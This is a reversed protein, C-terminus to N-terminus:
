TTLRRYIETVKQPLKDVEDIVTYNAAGYMYPLYEQAEKDITICFAQIDTKQIERLAHRTDEIGYQGKYGDCDEPRGDSLTILLKTHALTLQLQSGLHRIAAGMRTFSKPKIGSIRQRVCLDYPQDFTKIRYVECGQNSRGSFGFIAYRDGLMELAECLLVLSEKEAKNVWGVTSGSMDVMFMVAINRSQNRYRTYLYESMEQGNAVEAYAKIIADLDLDDGDSQRRQLQSELLVGEFTRKLSNVLHLYKKLTEDVFSEDGLTAPLERLSCFNEHFQQVRYDWERYRFIGSIKPESQQRDNGTTATPSLDKNDNGLDMLQLYEEPIGDFDQLISSILEPRFNSLTDMEAGMMLQINAEPKQNEYDYDSNKLGLRRTLSADRFNSKKFKMENVDISQIMRTLESKDREIREIMVKHVQNVFMEGQYNKLPPLPLQKVQDILRISDEATTGSEILTRGYERWQSWQAFAYDNTYGFIEFERALGPFDRAMCADLRICELRNFVPMVDDTSCHRILKEVIEYCWTGYWTQAWLHAATLKYLTFNTKAFPFIAYVAPLYLSETDTFTQKDSIIQLERGGLGRVFHRIFNSAESFECQVAPKLYDANLVENDCMSKKILINDLVNKTKHESMQKSEPM